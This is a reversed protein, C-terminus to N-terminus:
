RRASTSPAYIKERPSCPAVFCAVEVPSTQEETSAIAASPCTAAAFNGESRGAVTYNGTPLAITFTGGVAGVDETVPGEFTV